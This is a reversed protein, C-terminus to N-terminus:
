IHSGALLRAVFRYMTTRNSTGSVKLPTAATSILPREIKIVSLDVWASKWVCALSKKYPLVELMIATSRSALHIRSEEPHLTSVPVSAGGETMERRGAYAADLTYGKIAQELTLRQEPNWGGAPEGEETQRTLLLQIGPWPNITVVSWDSGFAVRGGDNMISHWPWSRVAREPGVNRAWVNLNNDNPLAPLPQMSAIVGLEGFRPIDAASPDETHEIRHRPDVTGNVTAAHQYADLAERIMHDGIAHTTIQFGHRDPEMVANLFEGYEWNLHGSISPDDSYPKLMAATHAEIVGDGMFKICGADIWEDQYRRRDEEAQELAKKTLKPPAIFNCIYFRMSLEGRKSLEEYLDLLPSDGILSHVRVVGFRNAEHM